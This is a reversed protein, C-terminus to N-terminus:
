SCPPRLSPFIGKATGADAQAIKERIGRLYSQVGVPRPDRRVRCKGTPRRPRALIRSPPPRRVPAPGRTAIAGVNTMPPSRCASISRPIHQELILFLAVNLPDVDGPHLRRYAEISCCSRLVAMWHINRLPIDLRNSPPASFKSNRISSAAPSTPRARPVQGARRLIPGTRSVHYPQDTGSLPILRDHGPAPSGSPSGRLSRPRRRRPHVLLAHQAAEWMESSIMERISRANERAKTLCSLLSNPNAPTSPWAGAASRQATNTDITQLLEAALPQEDLHLVELVGQWLKRQLQPDIDGVDTLVNDNILVLRAVHEAREIYRSTWYISEAARALMPKVPRNPQFRSQEPPSRPSM